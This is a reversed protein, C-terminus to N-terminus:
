RIRGHEATIVWKNGIQDISTVAGYGPIFDTPHVEIIAGNPGLIDAIGPAAAQITYHPLREPQAPAGASHPTPDAHHTTAGAAPAVPKTAAASAQTGGTPRSPGNPETPPAATVRMGIEDIRGAQRYVMQTLEDTKHMLADETRTWEVSDRKTTEELEGIRQLMANLLRQTQDPPTTDAAPQQDAQRTQLPDPSGVSAANASAPDQPSTLAPQEAVHAVKTTPKAAPAAPAASADPQDGGRRAVALATRMDTAPAGVAPVSPAPSAPNAGPHAAYEDHFYVWGFSCVAGTVVIVAGTLLIGRLTKRPPTQSDMAIVTREGAPADSAGPSTEGAAPRAPGAAGVRPLDVPTFTEAESM